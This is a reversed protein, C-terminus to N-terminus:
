RFIIKTARRDGRRNVGTEESVEKYVRERSWRREHIRVDKFVREKRRKRGEKEGERWGERGGKRGGGM